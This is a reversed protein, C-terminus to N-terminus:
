QGGLVRAASGPGFKEDFQAALSPDSLLLQIAPEPAAQVDQTEPPANPNPVLGIDIAIDNPDIGNKEAFAEFFDFVKNQQAEVEAFQRQATRMIDQRQEPTLPTGDVIKNYLNRITDPVGKSQEVTAAEGERVTSRPDLMKMFNFIVATDDSGKPNPATAAARLKGFAGVSDIYNKSVKTVEKRLDTVEKLTAKPKADLKKIKLALEKQKLDFDRNATTKDFEFEERKFADNKEARARNFATTEAQTAAARERAQRQENFQALQLGAQPNAQFLANLAQEDGQFAGQGFEALANQKRREQGQERGRDFANIAPTLNLGQLRPVTVM